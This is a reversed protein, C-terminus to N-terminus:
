CNDIKNDIIAGIIACDCIGGLWPLGLFRIEAKLISSLLVCIVFVFLKYLIYLIYFISFIEVGQPLYKMEVEVNRRQDRFFNIDTEEAPTRGFVTFYHVCHTGKLRPQPSTDYKGLIYIRILYIRSYLPFPYIAFKGRVSFSKTSNDCRKIASPKETSQPLDSNHLMITLDERPVPRNLFNM